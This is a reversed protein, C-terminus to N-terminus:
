TRPRLLVSVSGGIQAWPPKTGIPRKPVCILHSQADLRGSGIVASMTSIRGLDHRRAAERTDHPFSREAADIASANAHRANAADGPSLPQAPPRM